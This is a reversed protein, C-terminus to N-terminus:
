GGRPQLSPHYGTSWLCRVRWTGVHDVLLSFTVAHPDSDQPELPCLVVMGQRQVTPPSAM